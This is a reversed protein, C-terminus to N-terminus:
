RIRRRLSFLSSVPNQQFQTELACNESRLLKLRFPTSLLENTLSFFRMKDLNRISYYFFAIVTILLSSM